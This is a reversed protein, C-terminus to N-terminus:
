IAYKVLPHGSVDRYIADLQSQSTVWINCSLSIYKGSTSYRHEIDDVSFEEVHVQIVAVMKHHFHEDALGMVKIMFRCPFEILTEEPNNSPDLPSQAM